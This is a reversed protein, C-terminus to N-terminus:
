MFYPDLLLSTVYLCTIFLSFPSIARPFSSFHFLSIHNTSQDRSYQGANFTSNVAHCLKLLQRSYSDSSLYLRLMTLTTQGGPNAALAGRKMLWQADRVTMDILAKSEHSDGCPKSMFPCMYGCLELLQSFNLMMTIVDNSDGSATAGTWEVDACDQFSHANKGTSKKKPAANGYNFFLVAVM